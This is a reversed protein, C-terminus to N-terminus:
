LKYKILEILNKEISDYLDITHEAENLEKEYGPIKHAFGGGNAESVSRERSLREYSRRRKDSREEKELRVEELFKALANLELV